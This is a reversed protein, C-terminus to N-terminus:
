RQYAPVTLEMWTIDHMWEFDDVVGVQHHEDYLYIVDGTHGEGWGGVGRGEM